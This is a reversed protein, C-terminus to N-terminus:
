ATLVRFPDLLSDVFPLNVDILRTDIVTSERNEYLSGIRLKMWSKLSEPVVDGAAGYGAVYEIAVANVREQTAPWSQGPAPMVRAPESVADVLYLAPDLTQSTGSPDFYTISTVSQLPPRPLDIVFAVAGTPAHPDVMTPWYSVMRGDRLYPPFADLYLTWSQTIFARRTIEEAQIRADAILATILDDQATGTERLHLKVDALLLPEAAPPTTLKSAM